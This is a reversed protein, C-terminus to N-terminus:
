GKVGYTVMVKPNFEIRQEIGHLLWQKWRPWLNNWDLELPLKAIFKPEGIKFEVAEVYDSAAMVPRKACGPGEFYYSQPSVLWFSEDKMFEAGGAYRPAVHPTGCAVSEFSAYGFGEGLGIGLTVDCASYMWAMQEDSLQFATISVRGDLGYDRVLQPMDWWGKYADTHAWVRVDHGRKLLQAATDMALRWDKRGQNTAVVGLLLSTKTLGKFWRCLEARAMQRDQPQFVTTDIGHPLHDPYGTMRAGFDTYALVRDMGSLVSGRMKPADAGENDIPHYIWRKPLATKLWKKVAENSCTDPHALWGVRSADWITFIILSEDAAFDEVIAPLERPVWSGDLTFHYEPFPLSRSGIGGYGACAVRFEPCDDHIRRALDRTIRGFGSSASPSDSLILLPQATM